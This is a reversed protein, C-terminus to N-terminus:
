KKCYSERERERAGGERGQKRGGESGGGRADGPLSPVRMGMQPTRGTVAFPPRGKM